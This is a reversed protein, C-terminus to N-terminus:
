LSRVSRPVSPRDSTDRKRLAHLASGSKTLINISQNGILMCTSGTLTSSTRCSKSSDDGSFLATAFCSLDFTLQEPQLHIGHKSIYNVHCVFHNRFRLYVSRCAYYINFTISFDYDRGQDKFSVAVQVCMLIALKYGSIMFYKGVNSGPWNISMIFLPLISGMGSVDSRSSEVVCSRFLVFTNALSSSSM